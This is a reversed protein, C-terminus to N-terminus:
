ASQRQRQRFQGDALRCLFVEESLLPVVEGAILLCFKRFNLFSKIYIINGNFIATGSVNCINVSAVRFFVEKTKCM